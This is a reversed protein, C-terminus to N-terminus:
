PRSKVQDTFEVEKELLLANIRASKREDVEDRYSGSKRSIGSKPNYLGEGFEDTEIPEGDPGLAIEGSARSKANLDQLPNYSEFLM